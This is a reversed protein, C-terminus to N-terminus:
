QSTTMGDIPDHHHNSHTSICLSSSHIQICITSQRDSYCIGFEDCGESYRSLSLNWTFQLIATSSFCVGKSALVVAGSDSTNNTQSSQEEAKANGDDEDNVSVIDHSKTEAPNEADAM